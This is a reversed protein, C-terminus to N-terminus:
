KYYTKNQLGLVGYGLRIMASVSSFGVYIQEIDTACCSTQSM